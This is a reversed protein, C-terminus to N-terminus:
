DSNLLLIVGITIVAVVVLGLLIPGFIGMGVIGGSSFLSDLLVFFLVIFIIGVVTAALYMFVSAFSDSGFLLPSTGASSSVQLEVASRSAPLPKPIFSNAPKRIKEPGPAAHQSTLFKPDTMPANQTVNAAVVQNTVPRNSYDWKNSSSHTPIQQDKKETAGHNVAIHFGKQYRRKQVSLKSSCATAFICVAILLAAHTNLRRTMTM